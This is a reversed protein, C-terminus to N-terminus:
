VELSSQQEAKGLPSLGEQIVGALYASVMIILMGIIMAIVGTVNQPLKDSVSPWFIAPLIAAMFISTTSYAKALSARVYRKATAIWGHGFFVFVMTLLINPMNHNFMYGITDIYQGFKQSVVAYLTALILGFLTLFAFRWFVFLTGNSQNTGYAEGIEGAANIINLVVFVLVFLLILGEPSFQQKINGLFPSFSVALVGVFTLLFVGTMAILTPKSRRNEYVIVLLFAVVGLSQMVAASYNQIAYLFIVTSIAGLLGTVAAWMFAKKNMSQKWFSGTVYDADVIKGIPTLLLITQLVLGVVAGITLYAAVNVLDESNPLLDQMIYSDNTNFAAYFLAGLLLLWKTHKSQFKKWWLVLQNGM